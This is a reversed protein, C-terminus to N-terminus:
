ILIEMIKKKIGMGEKVIPSKPELNKKLYEGRKKRGEIKRLILLPFNIESTNIAIGMMTKSTNLSLLKKVM